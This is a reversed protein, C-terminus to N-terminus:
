SSWGMLLLLVLQLLLKFYIFIIMLVIDYRNEKAGPGHLQDKLSWSSICVFTNIDTGYLILINWCCASRLDNSKWYTNAIVLLLLQQKYVKRNCDFHSNFNQLWFWRQVIYIHAVVYSFWQQVVKVQHFRFM